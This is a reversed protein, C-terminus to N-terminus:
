TNNQKKTIALQQLRNMYTMMQDQKIRRQCKRKSSWFVYTMALEPCYIGLTLIKILGDVCDLVGTTWRLFCSGVHFCFHLYRKKSKKEAKKFTAQYIQGHDPCVGLQDPNSNLYHYCAGVNIGDGTRLRVPCHNPHNSRWTKSMVERNTVLRRIM